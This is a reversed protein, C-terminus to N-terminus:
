PLFIIYRKAKEIEREIEANKRNRSIEDQVSIQNICITFFFIIVTIIAGLYSGMFSFWTPEDFTDPRYFGERIIWETIFPAVIIIVVCLLMCLLWYRKLVRCMKEMSYGGIKHRKFDEILEIFEEEKMLVYMQKIYDNHFMCLKKYSLRCILFLKLHRKRRIKKDKPEKFGMRIYVTEYKAIVALLYACPIFLVSFIVPICFSVVTDIPNIEAYSGMAAKVTFIVIVIGILAMVSDLLKRTKIWEKKTGAMTQMLVIFTLIPQLILETVIGFTFTGVFFELLVIFKLNEKFLKTFYNENEGESVANYCYPVGVFLFWMVIDKIYINNWFSLYTSFYIIGGTYGLLILFPIVLKIKCACKIVKIVAQRTEKRSLIYVMFLSIYFAGAVERTSFVDFM